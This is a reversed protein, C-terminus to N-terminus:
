PVGASEDPRISNFIQRCLTQDATYERASMSHFGIKVPIYADSGHPLFFTYFWSIEVSPKEPDLVPLAPATTPGTAPLNTPLTAPILRPRIIPTQSHLMEFALLDNITLLDSAWSKLPEQASKLQMGSVLSEVGVRRQITPLTSITLQLDGEPAPGNIEVQIEGSSDMKWSEPVTIALPVNTLKLVTRHDSLLDQTTPRAPVEPIASPATQSTENAVPKRGCGGIFSLALFSLTTPLVIAVSLVTCRM